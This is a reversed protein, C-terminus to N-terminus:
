GVHWRYWKRIPGLEEYPKQPKRAPGPRGRGGFDNCFDKNRKAQESTVQPQINDNDEWKDAQVM